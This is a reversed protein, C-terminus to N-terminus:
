LLVTPISVGLEDAIQVNAVGEAARLM